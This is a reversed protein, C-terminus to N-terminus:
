AAVAVNCTSVHRILRARPSACSGVAAMDCLHLTLATVVGILNAMTVFLTYAIAITLADLSSAHASLLRVRPYACLGLLVALIAGIAVERLLLRLVQGPRLRKTNHKSVRHVWTENEELGVGWTHSCGLVVVNKKGDPMPDWSPCRFPWDAFTKLENDTYHGYRM